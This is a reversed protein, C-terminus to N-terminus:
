SITRRPRAIEAAYRLAAVVACGQTICTRAHRAVQPHSAVAIATMVRRPYGGGDIRMSCAVTKEPGLSQLVLSQLVPNYAAHAPARHTIGAARCGASVTREQVRRECTSTWGSSRCSAPTCACEDTVIIHLAGHRRCQMRLRRMRRQTDCVVRLGAVRCACQASTSQWMRQRWWSAVCVVSAARQRARALRYIYCASM